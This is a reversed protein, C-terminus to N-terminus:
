CDVEAVRRVFQCTLLSKLRSLEKCMTISFFLVSKFENLICSKGVMESFDSLHHRNSM